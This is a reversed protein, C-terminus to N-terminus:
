RTIHYHVGAANHLPLPVGIANKCRHLSTGILPHKYCCFRQLQAVDARTWLAPSRYQLGPKTQPSCSQLYGQKVILGHLSISNTNNQWRLLPSRNVRRNLKQNAKWCCLFIHKENRATSVSQSRRARDRHTQNARTSIITSNNDSSSNRMCDHKDAQNGVSSGQLKM